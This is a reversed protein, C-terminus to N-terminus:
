SEALIASPTNTTMSRVVGHVEMPTFTSRRSPLVATPALPPPLPSPSAGRCPCFTSLFIVLSTSSLPHSTFGEGRQKRINKEEEEASGKRWGRQIARNSTCSAGPAGATLRDAPRRQLLLVHNEMIVTITQAGTRAAQLNSTCSIRPLFLTPFHAFVLCSHAEFSWDKRSNVLTEAEFYM